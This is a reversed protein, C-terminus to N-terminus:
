ICNNYLYVRQYLFIEIVKLRLFTIFLLRIEVAPRGRTKNLLEDIHILKTFKGFTHTQHSQRVYM